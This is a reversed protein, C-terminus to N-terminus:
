DVPVAAMSASRIVPRGGASSGVSPVAVTSAEGNEVKDAKYVRGDTKETQDNKEKAVIGEHRAALHNSLVLTVGSWAATIVFSWLSQTRMSPSFHASAATLLLTAGSKGMRHGFFKILEKGLYRHDHSMPMYIM